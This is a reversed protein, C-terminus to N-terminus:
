ACEDQMRLYLYSRMSVSECICAPYMNVHVCLLAGRVIYYPKGTGDPNETAFSVAAGIGVPEDHTSGGAM